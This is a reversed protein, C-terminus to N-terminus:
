FKQKYKQVDKGLDYIERDKTNNRLISAAIASRYGSACLVVVPKGSPIESLRDPLDPLPINIASAFIKETTYEHPTRVDIITYQDPSGSFTTNDLVPFPSEGPHNYVFAGSIHGEYGIRALKEILSHLKETQEGVIYFKKGPSIVSGLWTEFRGGDSITITGPLWAHRIIEAPRTDIIVADKEPQFNDPLFPVASLGKALDVPGQRNLEVDYSFYKPVFPLDKLLVTVFEDETYNKFAYNNSREYGITSSRVNRVTGGCLSGAGHAPYVVVDDALASFKQHITHYMQRALTDRQTEHSGASERLDPRGVNGFLLADGTFVAVDKGNDELIISISDPSHGPTDWIKFQLRRNLKIVDGDDLSHSPYGANLRRSAYVIAKKNRQIDAHSSIFDAHPHTEIVAIINAGGAEAYQYFPKPDRAPDILIINKDFLIAYTFQALGKDEFQEIHWGTPESPGEGYVFSGPAVLGLALLQASNTLFRRRQM